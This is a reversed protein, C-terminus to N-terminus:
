SRVLKRIAQRNEQSSKLLDDVAKEAREAAIEGQKVLARVVPEARKQTAEVLGSAMDWYKKQWDKDM